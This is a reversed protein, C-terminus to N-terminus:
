IHPILSSLKLIKDLGKDRNYKLWDEQIESVFSSAPELYLGPYGKWIVQWKIEGTKRNIKHGVIKEVVYSDSSVVASNDPRFYLFPTATGDINPRNIKFCDMHLDEEGNPTRVRYRGSGLYDSIECPGMWLPQLKLNKKGGSIKADEPRVKVWVKDGPSFKIESHSKQYIKRVQDHKASLVKQVKKRMDAIEDFFDDSGRVSPEKLPPLEGPYLLDRGFVIRHPSYGAIIGPLNNQLFM